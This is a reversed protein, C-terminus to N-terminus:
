DGRGGVSQSGPLLDHTHPTPPPAIRPHSFVPVPKAVGLYNGRGWTGLQNWGGGLIPTFRLLDSPGPESFIISPPHPPSFRLIDSSCIESFRNLPLVYCM